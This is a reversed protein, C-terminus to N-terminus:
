FSISHLFCAIKRWKKDTQPTTLNRKLGNGHTAASQLFLLEGFFCDEYIETIVIDGIFNEPCVATSLPDLWTETEKNSKSKDPNEILEWDYPIIQAPYSEMIEGGYTVKIYSGATVGIDKLNGTAFSIKDSSSRESEGEM